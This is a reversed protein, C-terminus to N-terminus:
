SCTKIGAAIEASSTPGVVVLVKSALVGNLRWRFFADKAFGYSGAVNADTAPGDTSDTISAVSILGGTDAVQVSATAAREHSANNTDAVRVVYLQNAVMLYQMAAYVLYPDGDKPHPFGFSRHLETRNRVVTPINIPGKSAFGVVAARHFSQEPPVFSLDKETIRVSPSITNSPPFGKLIAM